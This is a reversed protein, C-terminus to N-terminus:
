SIAQKRGSVPEFIDRTQSVLLANMALRLRQWDKDKSDIESIKKMEALDNYAFITCLRNMNGSYPQLALIRKAGLRDNVVAMDEALKKYDAMRGPIVETMTLAYIM